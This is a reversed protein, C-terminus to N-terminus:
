YIYLEGAGFSDSTWQYEHIYRHNRISSVSAALGTDVAHKGWGKEGRETKRTRPAWFLALISYISLRLGGWRPLPAALCYVTPVPLRLKVVGLGQMKALQFGQSSFKCQEKPCKENVSVRLCDMAAYSAQSLDYGTRRVRLSAYSIEVVKLRPWPVPEPTWWTPSRCCPDRWGTPTVMHCIYMRPLSTCM